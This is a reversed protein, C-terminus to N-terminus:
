DANFSVVHTVKDISQFKEACVFLLKGIAVTLGRGLITGPFIGVALTPLVVLDDTRRVAGVTRPRTRPLNVDLTADNGPFGLLRVIWTGARIHRVVFRTTTGTAGRVGPVEVAGVTHLMRHHARRQQLGPALMTLRQRRHRGPFRNNGVRFRHTAILALAALTTEQAGVPVFHVVHNGSGIDVRCGLM